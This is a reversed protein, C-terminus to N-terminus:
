LEQEVKEKMKDRVKRFVNLVEEETGTASAPDEFDWNKLECEAGSCNYFIPCKDKARDCVTVVIDFPRDNFASVEQSKQGSIDVGLEAMVKVAYPNIGGAETGASYVEYKDPHIHRAFGEAMQSRCSNASCLFLIDKKQSKEVM